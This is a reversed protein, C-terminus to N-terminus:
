LKQSYFEIISQTNCPFPLHDVGPLAVMKGTAKAPDFDLYDPRLRTTSRELAEQIFSRTRSREIVAIEMGPSVLFSPRDVRHGDVTIHRHTVLQRAGPITPALGLRWVVNDLRRELLQVLNSGSPGRMTSAKRVYRRFQAELLGYHWRMKQKEVLRVKYDSSKGRRHAGHEGPPYPRDLTPTTTLGPLIMGVARCKKLRPGHERAM